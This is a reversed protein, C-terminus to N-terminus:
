EIQSELIRQKSREKEIKLQREQERNELEEEIDKRKKEELKGLIINKQRAM